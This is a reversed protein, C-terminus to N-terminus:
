RVGSPFLIVRVTQLLILVDLFLSANKVYYLDFSLKERADDISAGYPYNIQAWGTIGPKLRHRENYFPLIAALEEVFVPREPRPGVFSMDGKLVNIVQPIEDIRTQRLIQGIRTIRFDRQAAWQPGDKEADDRMSRFKTLTFVRGDLGVREQRYFVPGRSELKILLAAVITVPLTFTLLLCSVTVDFARKTIQFIDTRRFGDRFVFWSPRVATTDIYGIEEELFMVDDRVRIGATKCRLLKDIPMGRQNDLAVVLEDVVHEEALVLLDPNGPGTDAIVPGAVASQEGQTRVHGLVGAEHKLKGEVFARFRQARNGAGVVLIRRRMFPLDFTRVFLLRAAFATAHGAMVAVFLSLYARGGQAVKFGVVLAFYFILFDIVGAAFIRALSSQESYVTDRSHLGLSFFVLLSFAAALISTALLQSESFADFIVTAAAYYFLLLWLFDSAALVTFRRLTQHLIRKMRRSDAWGAAATKGRDRLNGRFVNTGVV